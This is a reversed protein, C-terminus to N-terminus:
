GRRGATDYYQGRLCKNHVEAIYAPTISELIEMIKSLQFVENNRNFCISKFQLKHYELPNIIKELFPFLFTRKMSILLESFYELKISSLLEMTNEIDVYYYFILICANKYQKLSLDILYNRTKHLFNNIYTKYFVSLINLALWERISDLQELLIGAMYYRTKYKEIQLTNLKRAKILTEECLTYSGNELQVSRLEKASKVLESIDSDQLGGSIMLYKKSAALENAVFSKIMSSDINSFTSELILTPMHLGDNETFILHELKELDLLQHNSETKKNEFHAIVHKEADISDSDIQMNKFINLFRHLLQNFYPFFTQGYFCTYEKDVFANTYIFPIDACFLSRALLHEALHATGNIYRIDDKMGSLMIYSISFISPMVDRNIILTLNEDIKYRVM